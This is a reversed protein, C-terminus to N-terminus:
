QALDQIGEHDIRFSDEIYSAPDPLPSDLRAIDIAEEISEAEIELKGYMEWTCPITFFKKGNDNM